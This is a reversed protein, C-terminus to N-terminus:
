EEEFAEALKERSGVVGLDRLLELRDTLWWSEAIKGDEIRHIAMGRYTIEKGTAPIGNFEGEHTGRIEWEHAVRDGGDIVQKLEMDYDPFAEHYKREGGKIEDLGTLSAEGGWHEVADERYIDDLLDMDGSTWAEIM